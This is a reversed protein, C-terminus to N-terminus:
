GLLNPNNRVFEKLKKDDLNSYKPISKIRKVLQETKADDQTKTGPFTSGDSPIEFDGSPQLTKKYRDCRNQLETFFSVYDGQNVKQQFQPDNSLILTQANAFQTMDNDKNWWDQNKIQFNYLAVQAMNNFNGPQQNQQTSNTQNTDQVTRNDALSTKNDTLNKLLKEVTEVDATEAAQKIQDTLDTTQKQSLSQVLSSVQTSLNNVNTTLTQIENDKKLLQSELRKNEGYLKNFETQTIFNQDQKNDKNNDEKTM